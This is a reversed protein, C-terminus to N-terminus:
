FVQNSWYLKITVNIILINRSRSGVCLAEMKERHILKDQWTMDKGIENCKGCLHCHYHCHLLHHCCCVEEQQLQQFIVILWFHTITSAAVIIAVSTNGVLLCQNEQNNSGKRGNVKRKEGESDRWTGHITQNNTRVNLRTTAEPQNNNRQHEVVM